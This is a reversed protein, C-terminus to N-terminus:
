MERGYRCYLQGFCPNLSPSEHVEEPMRTMEDLRCKAGMMGDNAMEVVVRVFVIVRELVGAFVIVRVETVSVFAAAKEVVDVGGTVREGMMEGGGVNLIASM